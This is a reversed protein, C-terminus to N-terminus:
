FSTTTSTQVIAQLSTSFGQYSDRLQSIIALDQQCGSAVISVSQDHPAYKYWM